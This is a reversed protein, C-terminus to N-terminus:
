LLIGSIVARVDTFAMGIAATNSAGAAFALTLTAGPATVVASLTLTDAFTRTGPTTVNLGHIVIPRTASNTGSSTTLTVNAGEMVYSVVSTAFTTGTHACTYSLELKYLGPNAVTITTAPIAFTYNSGPGQTGSTFSANVTSNFVSFATIDSYFAYMRSTGDVYSKQVLHNAITPAVDSEPCRDVFRTVGAAGGGLVIVSGAVGVGGGSYTLAPWTFKDNSGNYFFGDAVGNSGCALTVFNSEIQPKLGMAFSNFVQGVGAPFSGEGALMACGALDRAVVNSTGAVLSRDLGATISNSGMVLSGVKDASGSITSTGINLLGDDAGTSTYGDASGMHVVLPLTLTVNGNAGGDTFAIKRTAAALVRESTLGANLAMTVYSAQVMPTASSVWDTGNSTMVNGATSPLPPTVTIPNNAGGDVVSFGRNAALVREDSLGGSLAQVVYTANTPVAAPLAASTWDTGNSTMVNGSTSPVPPTVTINGNPGGDAVSFGSTAALVREDSLGGSLAQVVYTANTPAGAPPPASTWDTGDSTLLNGAIGPAPPTVVITQAAVPATFGYAADISRLDGNVGPSDAVGTGSGVNNVTFAAGPPSGIALTGTALNPTLTTEGPVAVLRLSAPFSTREDAQTLLTVGPVRVANFVARSRVRLYQLLASKRTIHANSNVSRSM